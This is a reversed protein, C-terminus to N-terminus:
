WNAEEKAYEVLYIAAGIGVPVAILLVLLVMLVTNIIAPMMSVNETNYEWAFMEPSLNPIGRILIYRRYLSHDGRYSIHCDVDSVAAGSFIATRQLKGASRKDKGDSDAGGKCHM